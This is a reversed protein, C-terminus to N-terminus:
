YQMLYFDSNGREFCIIRETPFISKIANSIDELTWEGEKQTKVLDITTKIAETEVPKTFIYIDIFGDMNDEIMFKETLM